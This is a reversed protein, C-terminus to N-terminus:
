ECRGAPRGAAPQVGLRLVSLIENVGGELERMRDELKTQMQHLDVHM